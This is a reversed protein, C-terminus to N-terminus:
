KWGGMQKEIIEDVLVYVLIWFAALIALSTLM